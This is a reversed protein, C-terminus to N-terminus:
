IKKTQAAHTAIRHSVNQQLNRYFLMYDYIHYSGEKFIALGPPYDKATIDTVRLTGRDPDLYAGTLAVQERLINGSYDTFCAGLNLLRDAKKADTRWSLPNIALTRVNAPVICSDYVGEAEADFLIISGTDTEGQAPKLHPYAAVEEDTLRWGIAYVAVLRQRLAAEAFFEKALRIAHDAGQSFGALVIPRGQNFHALYYCFAHRVDQYAVALYPERESEPMSYVDLGAMHYYPAFFRADRDYIGREMNVAGVFNQMAQADNLPMNHEEDEKEIYVTPCVFFVDAQRGKQVLDLYCWNYAASYDTAACVPGTVLATLGLIAVILTCIVHNPKSNLINCRM